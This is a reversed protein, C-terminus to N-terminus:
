KINGFLPYKNENMVYPGFSIMYNCRLEPFFLKNLMLLLLSSFCFITLLKIVVVSMTLYVFNIHKQANLVISHVLQNTTRLNCKFYVTSEINWWIYM